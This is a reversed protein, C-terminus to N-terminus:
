EFCSFSLFLLIKFVVNCYFFKGLLFIFNLLVATPIYYSFM